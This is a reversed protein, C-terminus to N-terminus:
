NILTGAPPNRFQGENGQFFRECNKVNVMIATINVVLTPYGEQLKARLM